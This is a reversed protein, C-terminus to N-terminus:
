AIKIDTCLIVHSVAATVIVEIFPIFDGVEIFDKRVQFSDDTNIRCCIKQMANKKKCEHFTQAVRLIQNM